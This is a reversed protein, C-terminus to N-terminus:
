NSFVFTSITTILPLSLLYLVYYLEPVIPIFVLNGYALQLCNYPLGDAMTLSTLDPPTQYFNPEPLDSKNM